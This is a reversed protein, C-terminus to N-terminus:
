TRAKSSLRTQPHLLPRLACHVGRLRGALVDARVPLATGHTVAIDDRLMRALAPSAAHYCAIARAKFEPWQDEPVKSKLNRLEHRRSLTATGPAPLKRRDSAPAAETASSM